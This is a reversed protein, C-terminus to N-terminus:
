RQDNIIRLYIILKFANILRYFDHLTTTVDNYYRQTITNNNM